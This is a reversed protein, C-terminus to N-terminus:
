RVGSHIELEDSFQKETSDELDLDLNLDMERRTTAVQKLHDPVTGHRMVSLM